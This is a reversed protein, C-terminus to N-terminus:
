CAILNSILLHLLDSKLPPRCKRKSQFCPYWAPCLLWSWPLPLFSISYPLNLPSPTVLSNQSHQGSSLSTSTTDVRWGSSNDTSFNCAGKHVGTNSNTTDFWFAIIQEAIQWTGLIKKM